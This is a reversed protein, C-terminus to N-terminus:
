KEPVPPAKPADAHRVYDWANDIARVIKPLASAFTYLAIVVGLVAGAKAWWSGKIESVVQRGASVTIAPSAARARHVAERTELTERELDNVRNVVGDTKHDLRRVDAKIMELESLAREFFSEMRDGIADVVARDEEREKQRRHYAASGPGESTTRRVMPRARGLAASPGVKHSSTDRYDMRRATSQM